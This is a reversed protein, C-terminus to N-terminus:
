LMPKLNSDLQSPENSKRACAASWKGSGTQRKCYLDPDSPIRSFIVRINTLEDTTQMVMGRRVVDYGRGQDLKM